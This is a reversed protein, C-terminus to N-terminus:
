SHLVCAFWRVTNKKMVYHQYDFVRLICNDDLCRIYVKLKLLLCIYSPISPTVLSDNVDECKKMMYAKIDYISNNNWLKILYIHHCVTCVYSQFLRPHIWLAHQTLWYFLYRRMCGVFLIGVEICIIVLLQEGWMPVTEHLWCIFYLSRYLDYIVLLNAWVWMPIRFFTLVM